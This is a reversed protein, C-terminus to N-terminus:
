VARDALESVEAALGEGPEGGLVVLDGPQALFYAQGGADAAQGDGSGPASGRM